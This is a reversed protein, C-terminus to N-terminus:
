RNTVRQIRSERGEEIDMKSSVRDRYAVGERRRQRDTESRRKEM